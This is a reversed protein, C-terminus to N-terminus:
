VLYNERFVVLKQKISSEYEWQLDELLLRFEDRKHFAHQM